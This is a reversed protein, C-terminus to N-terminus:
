MWDRLQGSIKFEANKFSALDKSGTLNLAVKLEHVVIDIYNAAGDIGSDMYSKLVSRAFGAIDAGLVIARAVDLGNEIGGSAVITASDSFEKKAWALSAATPIGWDSFTKGSQILEENSSRYSEVKTWSTGGAGAVDIYEVGIFRLRKLVDKSLGAGTEKVLIRGDMKDMLRAIGDLLGTFIRNGEKQVLEQAPNLHVCLADAEIRKALEAVEDSSYEILQVAGVNGLLVGDPIYERVAFDSVTEPYRFMVRQSGVAFAIGKDQAVSALDRNLSEAREAGGTMSTIMLPASLRKGFFPTGLNINGFDVEPLANHILHVSDLLTGGGHSVDNENVIRLHDSKRRSILSTALRLRDATLPLFMQNIFHGSRNM